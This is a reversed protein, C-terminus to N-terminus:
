NNNWKNIKCSCREKFFYTISMTTSLVAGGSGKFSPSSRCFFLFFALFIFARIFKLYWSFFFTFNNTEWDHRVRQSGTSQLEGSETWPIRWALLSSHTAMEMELPDEQDLSWVWTDHMAPPNKLTQHQSPNPAPSSPSSLPHSPQIADSVRHVHTQTFEPLQHHIPLGPTSHNM